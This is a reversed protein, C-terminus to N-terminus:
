AMRELAAVTAASRIRTRTREDSVGRAARRCVSRAESFLRLTDDARWRVGDFVMWRRWAAVYRASDRVPQLCAGAHRRVVHRLRRARQVDPRERDPPDLNPREFRPRDLDHSAIRRASSTRASDLSM